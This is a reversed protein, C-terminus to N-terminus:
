ALPATMDHWPGDAEDVGDDTGSGADVDVDVGADDEAANVEVDVDSRVGFGCVACVGARVIAGSDAEVGSPPVVEVGDVAGREGRGSPPPPSPSSWSSWSSSAGVGAAAAAARVGDGLVACVVGSPPLIEVGEDGGRGGQGSPPPSPSSWSSGSSSSGVGARVVASGDAEVGSPPAM